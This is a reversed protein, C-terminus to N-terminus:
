KNPWCSIVKEFNLEEMKVWTSGDYDHGKRDLEARVEKMDMLDPDGELLRSVAPCLHELAMKEQIPSLTKPHRLYKADSFGSCYHFSLVLGILAVWDRMREPIKQHTELAAVSIPLIDFPADAGELAVAHQELKARFKGLPTKLTPLLRHLEWAVDVMKM